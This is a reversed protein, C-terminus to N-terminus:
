QEEQPNTPTHLPVLPVTFSITTGPAGKGKIWIHGGHAEVLGKCIALGLGAGQLSGHEINEGRQFAKFVKKHEKPPIGPGQDSVNIKVFGALVSASLVIETNQPSYTAANRVLNVLVQAIRKADVNILPLNAPLQITLTKGSTLTNLQPLADQIINLLSCATPSIPLMGAELRSLDLLHDILEQLRNAEQQITQIFDRQEDPRWAVDEALLTTTFGIISTLPTRLEHSIMALFETKIENAKEAEHRSEEEIELLHLNYLTITAQDILIRLHRLEIHDLKKEHAYYVVLSGLWSGSEILPFIVLAHIQGELLLGRLLPTLRPDSQVKAIVITRNAQFLELLAPEEYFNSESLWPSQSQSSQWSATLEIGHTAGMKPNDFFLLAARQASRLENASMLTKLVAEPKRALSMKRSLNFQERTRNITKHLALEVQKRDSIDQSICFLCFNKGVQDRILFTHAFIWRLSQDPRLIRYVQDFPKPDNYPRATLVQVRDEPHVSEILLSPNAYLEECSRGWVTEFAPNVYLIQNTHADRLWFVQEVNEAIQSLHVEDEILKKLTLPHLDHKENSPFGRPRQHSLSKNEEPSSETSHDDPLIELSNMQQKVWPDLLTLLRKKEESSAEDFSSQFEQFFKELLTEKQEM